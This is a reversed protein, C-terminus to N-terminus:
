SGGVQSTLVKVLVVLLLAAFGEWCTHSDIYITGRLFLICLAGAFSLSLELDTKELLRISQLLKKAERLWKVFATM